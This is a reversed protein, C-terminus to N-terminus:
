RRPPGRTSRPRRIRGAVPTFAPIPVIVALPYVTGSRQSAPYTAIVRGVLAALRVLIWAMLPQAAAGALVPLIESATPRHGSVVREGVEQAGYVAFMMVTLGLREAALDVQLERALRLGFLGLAGAALPVVVTAVAGLYDHLSGVMSGVVGYGVVHGILAGAVAILLLVARQRESTVRSM